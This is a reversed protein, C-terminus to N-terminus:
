EVAYARQYRWYSVTVESWYGGYVDRKSDRNYLHHLISGPAPYHEPESRLVGDALYIGAHNPVPSRIQMLVIDGHQPAPVKEFGAAPLNELYLNGGKDWWGDEREYSGLDIGMERRYFDLIISLCDHVGHVFKRGILPAQYGVPAFSVLNGARVVDDDDKRVELIHWLLGSAECSVRDAESPTAPYDPHSHVVALIEGRDEAAAYDEPALRFHENPTSAINRCPIYIEKRSVRVLLGCAERPYEDIAHAEIAARNAKNM